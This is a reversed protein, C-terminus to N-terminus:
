RFRQGQREMQPDPIEYSEVFSKYTQRCAHSFSQQLGMRVQKALDATLHETKWNQGLESMKQEFARSAVQILDSVIM